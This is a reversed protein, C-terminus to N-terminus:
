TLRLMMEWAVDPSMNQRKDWSGNRSYGSKPEFTLEVVDGKTTTIILKTHEVSQGEAKQTVHVAKDIDHPSRISVKAM